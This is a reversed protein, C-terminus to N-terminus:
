YIRQIFLKPKFPWQQFFHWEKTRIAPRLQQFGTGLCGSWSLGPGTEDWIGQWTLPLTEYNLLLCLSAQWPASKYTAQQYLVLEKGHSTLDDGKPCDSHQNFGRRCGPFAPTSFEGCGDVTGIVFVLHSSGGTGAEEWCNLQHHRAHFPSLSFLHSFHSNKWEAQCCSLSLAEVVVGNSTTNLAWAAFVSPFVQSGAPRSM